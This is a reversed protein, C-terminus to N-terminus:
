DKSKDRSKVDVQILGEKDYQPLFYRSTFVNGNIDLYIKKDRKIRQLQLLSLQVLLPSDLTSKVLYVDKEESVDGIIFGKSLKERFLSIMTEAYNPMTVLQFLVSSGITDFFYIVSFALEITDFDLYFVRDTILDDRTFKPNYNLINSVIRYILSNLKEEQIEVITSTELIGLEKIIKLTGERNGTIGPIYPDFSLMLSIFAPLTKYSPVKLGKEILVGLNQANQIVTKEYDNLPRREIISSTFIGALIPLLDDVSLPFLSSFSTDYLHIPNGEYILYRDGKIDKFEIDCNVNESFSITIDGRSSKSILFSAIISDPNYRTKICASDRGMISIIAKRAGEIDNDKLFAEM